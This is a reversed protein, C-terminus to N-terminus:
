ARHGPSTTGKMPTFRSRIYFDIDLISFRDAFFGVMSAFILFPVIFCAAGISVAEEQSDLLKSGIPVILWRFMNDTLAVFFQTAVLALFSPSLLGVRGNESHPRTGEDSEPPNSQRVATQGVHIESMSQGGAELALETYSYLAREREEGTNTRCNYQRVQIRPPLVVAM